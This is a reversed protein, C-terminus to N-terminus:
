FSRDTSSPQRGQKGEFLDGLMDQLMDPSYKILKRSGSEELLFAYSQMFSHYPPVLLQSVSVRLAERLQPDLVTWKCQKNFAEEFAGNFALVKSKLVDRSAGRGGSSVQLGERSLHTVVKEWAKRRYNLMNQDVKRQWEKRWDEGLCEALGTCEKLRILVHRYNNMLFVHALVQDDYSRARDELNNQLATMMSIMATSLNEQRKGIERLALAQEMAPGYDRVIMGMYNVVFSANLDKGGDKPVQAQNMEVNKLLEWFARCVNQALARQSERLQVWTEVGEFVQSADKNIEEFGKFLDLLGVLLAEPRQHSRAVAEVFLSFPSLNLQEVIKGFCKVREAPDLASFIQNCLEREKTLLVKVIVQLDKVWLYIYEHIQEWKLKSIADPTSHQLYNRSLSSMGKTVTRVRADKYLRLCGRTAGNLKLRDMIMLLKAMVDDPFHQVRPSPRADLEASVYPALNLPCSNEDVLRGFEGELKRLATNLPGGNIKLLEARPDSGRSQALADTLKQLSTRDLEHSRHLYVIADEAWDM